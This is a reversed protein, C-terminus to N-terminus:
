RVKTNIAATQRTQKTTATQIATVCLLPYCVAVTMVCTSTEPAARQAFMYVFVCVCVCVTMNESVSM